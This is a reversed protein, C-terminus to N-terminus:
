QDIKIRFDSGSKESVTKSRSRSRTKLKFIPDRNENALDPIRGRRFLGESVGANWAVDWLDYSRDIPEQITDLHPWKRPHFCPFFTLRPIFHGIGSILHGIKSTIHGFSGSFSAIPPSFPSRQSVTKEPPRSRGGQALGAGTSPPPAQSPVPDTLRFHPKMAIRPIGVRRPTFRRMLSSESSFFEFFEEVGSRLPAGLLTLGLSISGQNKRVL